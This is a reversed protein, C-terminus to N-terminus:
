KALSSDAKPRRVSLEESYHGWLSSAFQNYPETILSPVEFFNSYSSVSNEVYSHICVLNDTPSKCTLFQVGNFVFFRYIM